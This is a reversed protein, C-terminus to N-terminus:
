FVFHIGGPDTIDAIIVDYQENHEELFKFGDEVYVTVKPHVFGSAMEPIYKKSVEIVM